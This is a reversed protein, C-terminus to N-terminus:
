KGEKQDRQLVVLVKDQIALVEQCKEAAINPGVQHCGYGPDFLLAEDM